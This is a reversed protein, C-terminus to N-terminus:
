RLSSAHNGRPVKKAGYMDCRAPEIPWSRRRPSARITPNIYATDAYMLSCVGDPRDLLPSLTDPRPLAEHARLTHGIALVM